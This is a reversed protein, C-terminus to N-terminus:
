GIKLNNGDLIVSQEARVDANRARVRLAEQASIRVRGAKTECVDTINEIRRGYLGIRQGARELIRGVLCRLSTVTQTFVRSTISLAETKFELRRTAVSTDDPLVLQGKASSRDLISIVYAQEVADNAASLVVLVNDGTEPALLCSAARQAMVMGFSGSVVINASHAVNLVCQVRGTQLATAKETTVDTQAM